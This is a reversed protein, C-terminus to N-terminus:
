RFTSFRHHPHHRLDLIVQGTCAIAMMGILFTPQLMVGQKLVAGFVIVAVSAVISYVDKTASENM